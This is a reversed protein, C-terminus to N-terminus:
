AGALSRLKGAAQAISLGDEASSSLSDALVAFDMQDSPGLKNIHAHIRHSLAVLDDTVQSVRKRAEAKLKENSDM